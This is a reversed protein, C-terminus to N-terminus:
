LREGLLPRRQFLNHRQVSPVALCLPADGIRAGQQFLRVVGIHLREGAFLHVAEALLLLSQFLVDPASQQRRVRAVLLVDDDLYAGARAAVLGREEGGVEEAHVRAVGLDRPQFTSTKDCLSLPTPPRFSIMKSTLPM